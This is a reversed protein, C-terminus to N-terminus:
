TQYTSNFQNWNPLKPTGGNKCEGLSRFSPCPLGPFLAVCVCVYVCLWWKYGQKNEYIFHLLWFGQHYSFSSFLFSFSLSFSNSLTFWASKLSYNGSLVLTAYCSTESGSGQVHHSPRTGLSSAVLWMGLGSVPKSIHQDLFLPDFNIKVLPHHPWVVEMYPICLKCLTLKSTCAAMPHHCSHRVIHTHTHTHTM